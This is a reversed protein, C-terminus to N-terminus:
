GILGKMWLCKFQVNCVLQLCEETDPLNETQIRAWLCSTMKTIKTLEQLSHQSIVKFCAIM